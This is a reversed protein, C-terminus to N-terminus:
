PATTAVVQIPVLDVLPIDMSVIIDDRSKDLTSESQPRPQKSKEIKKM